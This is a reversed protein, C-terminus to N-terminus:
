GDKENNQPYLFHKNLKPIRLFHTEKRLLKRLLIM